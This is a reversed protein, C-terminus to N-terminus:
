KIPEAQEAPAEENAEDASEVIEADVEIPTEPTKIEEGENLIEPEM